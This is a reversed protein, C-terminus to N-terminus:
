HTMNRPDLIDRLGDGLLNFGLVALVLAFGPFYLTWPAYTYTQVGEMIMNGWAPTPPQIGIGLYSLGAATLIFMGVNLASLVIVPGIVNPLIVRFMIRFNGAGLAKEAQVYEFEKLSLVTGRVVRAMVGWGLVGIAFLINMLSPRLVSVLAMAFLLFPFALITDTTRMIITDVWGGFYGSILGLGTGIVLTIATAFFGIELAIRSGFVIRSFIGRGLDDTGWIADPMPGKPLGDPTLGNPLPQTPNNPAILPAFLAVLVLFLVIAGGVYVMPFERMSKWVKAAFTKNTSSGAKKNISLETSSM